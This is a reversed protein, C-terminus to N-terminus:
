GIAKAITKLGRYANVKVATESMGTVAAAEKASLGNVKVLIISRRIKDPLSTLLTQATLRTEICSSEGAVLGDIHEIPVAGSSGRSKRLFDITKYRAIAYVWATVSVSRDFTHGKAHIALLVEQVIDEAETDNRGQQLLRRRVFPKLKVALTTLFERYARDDGELARDWLNRLLYDSKDM